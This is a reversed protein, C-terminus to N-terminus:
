YLQHLTSDPEADTPVLRGNPQETPLEEVLEAEENQQENVQSTRGNPREVGKELDDKSQESFQRQQGSSRGNRHVWNGNPQDNNDLTMNATHGNSTPRPHEEEGELPFACSSDMVPLTTKICGFLSAKRRFAACAYCTVSVSSLAGILLAGIGAWYGSDPRVFLCVLVFGGVLMVVTLQLLIIGTAHFCMNQSNATTM